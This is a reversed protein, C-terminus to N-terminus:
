IDPRTINVADQAEPLLSLYISTILMVAL